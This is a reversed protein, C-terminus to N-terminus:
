FNTEYSQNRIKLEFLNFMMKNDDEEGLGLYTNEVYNDPLYYWYKKDAESYIVNIPIYLNDYVKNM